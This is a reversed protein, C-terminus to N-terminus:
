GLKTVNAVINKRMCSDLSNLNLEICNIAKKRLHHFCIKIAVKMPAMPDAPKESKNFFRYM